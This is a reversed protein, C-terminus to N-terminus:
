SSTCPKELDSVADNKYSVVWEPEGGFTKRESRDVQTSTWSKDICGREALTSVVRIAAQVAQQKTSCPKGDNRLFFPPNLAPGHVLDSNRLIWLL